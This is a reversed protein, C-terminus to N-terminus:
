LGKGRRRRMVAVVGIALLASALGVSPDDEDDDDEVVEKVATIPIYKENNGENQEEIQHPADVSLYYVKENRNDWEEIDLMIDEAMVSFTLYLHGDREIISAGHGWGTENKWEGDTDKILWTEGVPDWSVNIALGVITFNSYLLDVLFSRNLEGGLNLIEMQFFLEPKSNPGILVHDTHSFNGITLDPLAPLITISAEAWPSWASSNDQARFSINHDGQTLNDLSFGDATSALWGDIQWEYGIIQGDTDTANGTFTINHDVWRKETKPNIHTINAQPLANVYLGAHVWDSWAGDDDQVRFSINHYGLSLTDTTFNASASLLGDLSSEWEWATIIGDPDTGTGNFTTTDEENTPSPLISSIMATPAFYDFFYVKNDKSGAVFNVGDASITVSEVWDGTTHNWIPTSNSQDFLYVMNDWSGAVLHEGDASIAVSKVWGGTTYNWLPTSSGTEFLYIKKDWSGAVIYEGDASIAVHRVNGGASFNWLPTSNDRDFLYVMDDYSGAVIYEGDASIDVSWVQDGASYSWLPTSNDKHFLYVMGDYSGAVIYEGDASIAVSLMTEEGTYSWLPTASDQGFLYVTDYSTGAAIYEGDASIAVSYVLSGAGSAYSWLYSSSERGFLMVRCDFSGAAIYQGDASIAVSHMKENTTYSWLPTSNDQEFLYVKNDESGAAIYQGDASIVVSDLSDGTTHNWETEKAQAGGALALLVLVVVFLFGGVM